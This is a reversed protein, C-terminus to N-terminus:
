AGAETADAEEEMMRQKNKQAIGIVTFFTVACLLMLIAFAFFAPNYSGTMDYCLNVMPTGCAYGAYNAALLYGLCKDYSASGFLGNVILPIVVTELPLALSFFVAFVTALVKGTTNVTLFLMSVFAIITSCQCLLLTPRLGFHDYVLGVIIKSVTLVLSSVSLVTAVFGADFGVDKVHAAWTGSISQLIFGTLFVMVLVLYFWPKRKLEALEPGRWSGGRAKKATPAPAHEPPNKLVIVAIIGVVTLIAAVLLYSRRYGFPEGSYIIPTIIQAAVAGGVGNAAFVIGLYRGINATFWHKILYSAISNTTFTLGVGLLIGGLYFLLIHSATAYLLMSGILSLFGFGVMRRVGFRGILAAFFLNTLASTVYRFSDNISFLSRKIQLAETIAGLYLSKNSSCFGLCVFVMMFCVALVAWRYRSPSNPRKM